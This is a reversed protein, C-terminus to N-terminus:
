ESRSPKKLIYSLMANTMQVACLILSIGLSILVIILLIFIPSVTAAVAVLPFTLIAAALASGISALFAPLLIQKRRSKNILKKPTGIRDLAVYLEDHEFLEIFQTFAVQCSVLLFSIFVILLLVTRTDILFQILTAELQTPGRRVADLFGLMAGTPVLVFSTFAISSVLRWAGKPDELNRRAAILECVSSTKSVRKKAQLSVLYPGAINLVGMIIILVLVLTVMIGLIGWSPSALRLLIVGLVLLLILAFLRLNSLKTQQSRQRVGLPTLILQNLGIQSSLLSITLLIFYILLRFQVPLQLQERGIPIGQITIPALVYPILFSLFFAVSIGIGQILTAEAVALFRVQRESMGLLRLVSLRDNRSQVSLKSSATGLSILPVLLLGVLALSLIRYGGGSDTIGWFFKVLMATAFAVGSILIASLVQVVLTISKLSRSKTLLWVLKLEM